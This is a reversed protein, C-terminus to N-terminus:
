MEPELKSPALDALNDDAKACKQDFIPIAILIFISLDCMISLTIDESCVANTTAHTGAM